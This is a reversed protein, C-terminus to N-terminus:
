SARGAVSRQLYEQISAVEVRMHSRPASSRIGRLEGAVVLRRVTRPHVGIQAAAEGTTIVRPSPNAQTPQGARTVDDENLLLVRRSPIRYAPLEGREIMRYVLARSVGLQEAAETVSLM